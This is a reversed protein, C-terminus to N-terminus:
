SAEGAEIRARAEELAAVVAALEGPAVTVFRTMSSPNRESIPTFGLSVGFRGDGWQVLDVSLVSRTRRLELLREQARPGTQVTESM